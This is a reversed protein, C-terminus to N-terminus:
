APAARARARRQEANLALADGSALEVCALVAVRAWEAVLEFAATVIWYRNMAWGSPGVEDRGVESAPLQQRYTLGASVLAPLYGVQGGNPAAGPRHVGVLAEVSPTASPRRDLPDRLLACLAGRPLGKVIGGGWQDRRRTTASLHVLALGLAAIRRTRLDSWSRHEAGLVPAISARLIAGAAPRNLLRALYLRAARGSRDAIVQACMLWVKFPIVRARNASMLELGGAVLRARLRELYREDRERLAQVRTRARRKRQVVAAAATLRAAAARSRAAARPTAPSPHPSQALRRREHAQERALARAEAGRSPAEAGEAMKALRDFFRQAKPDRADAM